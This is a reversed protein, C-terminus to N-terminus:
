VPLYQILFIGGFFLLFLGGTTHLFLEFYRGLSSNKLLRAMKRRFIIAALGILALLTGIGLSMALVSSVGTLIYGSIVAFIMIASAAPCPILGSLVMGILGTSEHRNGSDIRRFDILGHIIMWLGLLAIIGYTIPLLVAEASNVSLMLSKASLWAFGGVLLIASGGHAAALLFGASIGAVPRASEGMFYGALITKRHGPGLAHLMGYAFSLSLLVLTGKVTTSNKLLATIQLQLNRQLAASKTMFASPRRSCRYM